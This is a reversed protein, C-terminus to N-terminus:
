PIMFNRPVKLSLRCLCSSVLSHPSSAPASFMGDGQSAVTRAERRLGSGPRSEGSGRLRGGTKGRSVGDEVGCGPPAGAPAFRTVDAKYRLEESPM